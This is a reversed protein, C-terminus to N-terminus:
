PFRFFQISTRSFFVGIQYTTLLSTYANRHFWNHDTDPLKQRWARDAWCTIIIYEFVYVFTLNIMFKGVHKFANKLEACSLSKNEKTDGDQEADVEIKEISQRRKIVYLIVVVM